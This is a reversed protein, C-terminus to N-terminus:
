LGQEGKIQYKLISQVFSIKSQVADILKELAKYEAEVQMMYTYSPIISPEVQMLQLIAMDYGINKRETKFDSLHKSALLVDLEVRCKAAEVRKAKYQQCMEIQEDTLKLYETAQQIDM